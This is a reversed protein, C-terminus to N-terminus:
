DNRMSTAGTTPYLISSIIAESRSPQNSNINKRVRGQKSRDCSGESLYSRIPRYLVGLLKIAVEGVNDILFATSSNKKEM